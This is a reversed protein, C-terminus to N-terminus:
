WWQKGFTIKRGRTAQNPISDSRCRSKEVPSGFRVLIKRNPGWLTLLEPNGEKMTGYFEVDRAKGKGSPGDVEEVMERGEDGLHVLGGFGFYEFRTRM